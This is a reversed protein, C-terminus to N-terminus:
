YKKKKIDFIEKVSVLNGRAFINIYDVLHISNAFRFNKLVKNPFSNKLKLINQQDTIQIIRNSKDKKLLKLAEITSKFNRRNLGIFFQNKIVNSILFKCERYNYGFPKEVLCKWPYKSVKLCVEKTSEVSVCVVVLDPKFKLAVRIAKSKTRSQIAIINVKNIKKFARIHEESTKGAGIFAVKIKSSM